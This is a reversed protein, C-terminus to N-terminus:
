RETGNPSSTSSDMRNSAAAGPSPENRAPQHWSTEAHHLHTQTIVSALFGGIRLHTLVRVELSRSTM